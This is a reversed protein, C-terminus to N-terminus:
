KATKMKGAMDLFSTMNAGPRRRGNSGSASPVLYQPAFTTEGTPAKIGDSVAATVALAPKAEPAKGNKSPEVKAVNSQTVPATVPTEAMNNTNEKAKEDSSEDLELYYGGGKGGPILGAIFSLIGSILKKIFGFM